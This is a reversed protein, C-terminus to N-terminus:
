TTTANFSSLDTTVSAGRRQQTKGDDVIFSKRDRPAQQQRQPDKSGSDANNVKLFPKFKADILSNITVPTNGEFKPVPVGDKNLERVEISKEGNEKAVLALQHAQKLEALLAKTITPRTESYGDAFTFSNAMKELEGNLIYDDFKGSWEKEVQKIHSEKAKELDTFKGTLEQIAKEKDSLAKKIEEDNPAIKMKEFVKPLSNALAELQKYTDAIERPKDASGVVKMMKAIDYSTNKDYPDIAALIKSLHSNVPDLHDARLKRVVDTHTAARDLTMFTNELTQFIPDPLEGDPVGELFKNYDESNIKGQEKLKTFYDKFKM